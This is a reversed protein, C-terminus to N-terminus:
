REKGIRRAGATGLRRGPRPSEDLYRMLGAIMRGIKQCSKDISEADPDTIYGQDTAIVLLSRVEGCSGKAIGLFQLFEEDGGREFGEAINAMISIASRRLQDRLPYDKALLGQSSCRYVANTLERAAQWAVLDEFREVTAM